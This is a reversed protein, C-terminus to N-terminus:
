APFACEASLKRHIAISISLPPSTTAGFSFVIGGFVSKYPPLPLLLLWGLFSGFHVYSIWGILAVTALLFIAHLM